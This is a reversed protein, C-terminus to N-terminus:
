TNIHIGKNHQVLSNIFVGLTSVGVVMLFMGVLRGGTTVPYIDGYGVSSVTGMAWWISDFFNHVMPSVGFEFSHFMLASLLSLIGVVVALSFLKFQLTDVFNSVRRIRSAIRIIRLLRLVGVGRLTQTFPVSFPICAFLEWWRSKWFDKTNGSRYWGWLFDILFIGAIVSDIVAIWFYQLGSFDHTIEFLVLGTSILALLVMVIEKPISLHVSPKLFNM